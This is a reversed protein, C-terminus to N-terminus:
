IYKISGGTHKRPHLVFKFVCERLLRNKTGNTEPGPRAAMAMTPRNLCVIGVYGNKTGNGPAGPRAAMTPIKM